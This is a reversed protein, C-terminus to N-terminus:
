AGRRAPPDAPRAPAHTPWVGRDRLRRLAYSVPGSAGYWLVLVLLTPATYLWFIAFLIVFAIVQSFPQRGVIYARHVRRYPIRSVMLIATLLAVGPMAYGILTKAIDGGQDQFLLLAVLISAAGPSPLGRFTRHDYGVEAYEVNFRALRVAAMAVYVAACLWTFRGWFHDSFPSPVIADAALRKTMFVIMLATPAVGFTVIDALSDLQGGFNTTSRTVRAVLGDFMDFLMGVIVLAAGVSLLTPLMPELLEPPLATPDTSEGAGVEHMARLGFHIAAFGCVLNGLTLVTPVLKLTRLRRVRGRREVPHQTDGDVMKM